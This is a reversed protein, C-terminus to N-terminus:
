PGVGTLEGRFFLDYLQQTRQTQDLGLHALGWRCAEIVTESKLRRGLEKEFLERAQPALRVALGIAACHRAEEHGRTRTLLGGHGLMTAFRASPDGTLAAAVFYRRKEDLTHKDLAKGDILQMIRGHVQPDHVRALAQLARSRVTKAPDKLAAFLVERLAMIETAGFSTLCELRVKPESNQMGAALAVHLVEPDDKAKLAALLAHATPADAEALLPAVAHAIRPSRIWHPLRAVLVERHEPVRVQALQRCLHPLMVEGDLLGLIALISPLEPCEALNLGRLIQNIFRTSSWHTNIAQTLEAHDTDGLRRVKRMLRELAGYQGQELQWDAIRGFLATIRAARDAPDLEASVKFLIEIFKELTERGTSRIVMRLTAFEGEDMAFPQEEFRALDLDSLGVDAHISQVRRGRQAGPQVQAKARARVNAMVGEITYHHAEGEEGGDGYAEAIAYDIHTFQKEWLMTVVDDEFYAPDDWDLLMVDVLGDLEARTLEAHFRLSRVGDMFFRYVFNREPSHNEYIPHEYLTFEYPGIGLELPSETALMQEMAEFLRDRFKANAQHDNGYLQINKVLKVLEGFAVQAIRLREQAHADLSDTSPGGFIQKIDGRQGRKLPTRSM